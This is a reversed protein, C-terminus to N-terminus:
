WLAAYLKVLLGSFNIVIYIKIRNNFILQM